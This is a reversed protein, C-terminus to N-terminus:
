LASSSRAALRHDLPPRGAAHQGGPAWATLGDFTGIEVLRRAGIFKAVACLAMLEYRKVNGFQGTFPRFTIKVSEIGPWVEHPARERLKRTLRFRLGRIKSQLAFPLVSM